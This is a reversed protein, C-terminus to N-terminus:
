GAFFINVIAQVDLVDVSGDVNADARSILAEDTETELFVNVCLQVDLVDVRGDLNIDGPTATPTPTAPEVLQALAADVQIRPRTVGDRAIPVGTDSLAQLIEDLTAAPAASKLVAWAGAVHPAAMSTGEKTAFADNPVSSLIQAGPALLNLFTALNSSEFVADDDTSAGVSVASSVCAPAALYGTLGSNGAAIVTAIGVSRLNEIALARSDDDCAESYSGGGLSMNVAALNYSGRQTYLWELAALQDSSWSLVCPAALGWTGCQSDFLSFVQVSILSAERAVGWTSGGKGAAIGAVHTGHDCNTIAPDCNLGSDTGTQDGNADPDPCLSVSMTGTTSFCAEAVVKDTLFSHDKDIGTDLIAIVQGFGEYGEAWAQDAGILPISESLLPPVAEDLQIDVVDPSNRLEELTARDVEMVVFPLTEFTHTTPAKPLELRGLVEQGVEAIQRRQAERDRKGHLAGEPTFPTDLRVIVRVRGEEEVQALIDAYGQFPHLVTPSTGRAIAPGGQGWGTALLALGLVAARFAAHALRLRAWGSRRVRTPPLSHCPYSMQESEVKSGKELVRAFDVWAASVPQPPVM